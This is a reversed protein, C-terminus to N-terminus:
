EGWAGGTGNTRGEAGNAAGLAPRVASARQGSAYTTAPTTATRPRADVRDIKFQTVMEQLEAAMQSLAGAAAQTQTAGAATGQASRAVGTINRAIDTAGQAAQVVNRGIENTTATQEEVASAITTSIDNVQGIIGRIEEIAKM